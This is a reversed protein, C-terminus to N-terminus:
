KTGIIIFCVGISPDAPNPGEGGAPRNKLRDGLYQLESINGREGRKALSHGPCGHMPGLFYRIQHGHTCVHMDGRNFLRTVDRIIETFGGKHQGGLATAIGAYAVLDPDTLLLHRAISIAVRGDKVDFCTRNAVSIPQTPRFSVAHIQDVTLTVSTVAPQQDLSLDGWAALVATACPCSRSFWVKKRM